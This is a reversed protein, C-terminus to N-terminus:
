LVLKIPENKSCTESLLAEEEEGQRESHDDTDNRPCDYAYHGFEQCRYCSGRGRNSGRLRGRAGGRRSNRGGRRASRGRSRGRQDSGYFTDVPEEKIPIHNDDTRMASDELKRIQIKVLNYELKTITTRILENKENPLNASELLRYALAADPYDVKYYKLKNYLREFENIYDNISQDSPRKHQEFKKLCVYLQQNEDKLYLGDLKSLLIKMGDDSNLEEIELELAAERAKGELSLVLDPAQQKKDLRCSIQWLQVLKKWTDYSVDDSLVPPQRRGGVAGVVATTNTTTTTATTNTMKVKLDSRNKERKRKEVM